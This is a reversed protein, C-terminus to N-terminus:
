QRKEREVFQRFTTPPRNLLWGLVNSNGVFQYRQYYNFMKLLTEIQYVGLGAVKAGEVWEDISIRTAKVPRKLVDGLVAAVEVRSLLDSGVLEYVAGAHGPKTLVTAVTTAVDNLDVMALRTDVSYPVSYIGQEVITSWGVLVNQMYAAPQLVTVPIQQEFLMAEVRLKNWHHPMQETQPHLVSHYVFHAVGAEQAAQIAIRGIEVENPNMNPCIHYVAEIGQMAQEFASTDEMSGVLVETAGAARAREIHTDRYVFARVAANKTLLAKIVAQGTKGAAGTVLIM